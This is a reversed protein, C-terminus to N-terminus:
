RLGDKVHRWKKFYKRMSSVHIRFLKGNKSSGREWEHTVGVSPLWVVRGLGLARRTLDADECYMFFRDDFGQLQRLVQTRILMFCGTCFTIDTPQTVERDSYTYQARWRRFLGGFRELKGAAMYRYKPTRRPVPQVTGDPNYIQPTVMVVDPHERLYACLPTLVDTDFTIDPNVILHYDSDLLPLVANHGVGFGRNEPLPVVRVQPFKERVWDATGDQSANDVVYVQLEYAGQHAFLSHLVGEIKPISNYSVVAASVREM